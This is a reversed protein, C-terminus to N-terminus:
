YTSGNKNQLEIEENKEIIVLLSSRCKLPYFAEIKEIVEVEKM